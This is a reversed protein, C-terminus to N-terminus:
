LGRTVTRVDDGDLMKQLLPCRRQRECRAAQLATREHYRRTMYDYYTDEAQLYSAADFEYGDPIIWALDYFGDDGARYYFVRDDGDWKVAASRGVYWGGLLHSECVDCPLGVDIEGAAGACWEDVVTAPHMVTGAPAVFTFGAGEWDPGPQVKVGWIGAPLPVVPSAVLASSSDSQAIPLTLSPVASSQAMVPSFASKVTCISYSGVARSRPMSASFSFSDVSVSFM